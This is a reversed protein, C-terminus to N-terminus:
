KSCNFSCSSCSSTDLEEKIKRTLDEISKVIVDIQVSDKSEEHAEDRWVLATPHALPLYCPSRFKAMWLEGADIRPALYKAYERGMYIGYTGLVDTMRIANSDVPNDPERVMILPQEATWTHLIECTNYIKCGRLVVILKKM